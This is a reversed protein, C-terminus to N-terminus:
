MLQMAADSRLGIKAGSAEFANRRLERFLEDWGVRERGMLRIPVPMMEWAADVVLRRYADEDALVAASHGVAKHLSDLVAQMGYQQLLAAPPTAMSPGKRNEEGREITGSPKM